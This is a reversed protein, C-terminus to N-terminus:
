LDFISNSRCLSYDNLDREMSKPRSKKNANKGNITFFSSM